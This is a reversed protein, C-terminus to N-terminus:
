LVLRKWLLLSVNVLKRSVKEVTPANINAEGFSLSLAPPFAITLVITQKCNIKSINEGAIPLETLM